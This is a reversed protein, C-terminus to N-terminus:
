YIIVATHQSADQDLTERWIVYEAYTMTQGGVVVSMDQACDVAVGNSYLACTMDDGVVVASTTRLTAHVTVSASRAHALSPILAIIFLVLNRSM